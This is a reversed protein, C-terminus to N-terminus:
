CAVDKKFNSVTHGGRFFFVGTGKKIILCYLFEVFGVLTDKKEKGIIGSMSSNM